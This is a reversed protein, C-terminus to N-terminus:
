SRILLEDVPQFPRVTVKKGNSLIAFIKGNWSWTSRVHQHNRLRNMTKVNLMTLDETAASHSGKIRRSRIVLDRADRRCFCVLMIPRKQQSAASQASGATMLTLKVLLLSVSLIGSSGPLICIVKANLREVDRRRETVHTLIGWYTVSKLFKGHTTVHMKGCKVRNRIEFSIVALPRM